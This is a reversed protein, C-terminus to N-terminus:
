QRDPWVRQELVEIRREVHAHSRGGEIALKALRLEKHVDLRLSKAQATARRLREGLPASARLGTQLANLHPWSRAAQLTLRAQEERSVAEPEEQSMARSPKDTYGGTKGLLRVQDRMAPSPLSRDPPYSQAMGLRTVTPATQPIM